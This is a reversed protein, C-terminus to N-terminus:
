FVQPMHCLCTPHYLSLIKCSSPVPHQSTSSKTPSIEAETSAGTGIEHLDPPNLRHMEILAILLANMPAESQYTSSQLFSEHVLQCLHLVRLLECRRLLHNADGVFPGLIGISYIYIYIYKIVLM